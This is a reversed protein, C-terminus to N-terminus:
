ENFRDEWWKEPNTQIYWAIQEYSKQDRIIHDHYRSQRAFPINNQNAYKTVNWKFLKIINWLSPGGYPRNLLGDGTHILWDTWNQIDVPLKTIWTPRMVSTDRRNSIVNQDNWQVDWQGLAVIMHIHNPMVIHNHIYVNKRITEIRKMEDLCHQWLENPCMIVTDRGPVVEGFYHERDKICITIFYWWPSTYDYWKMRPSKRNKMYTHPKYTYESSCVGVRIPDRGRILPCYRPGGQYPLHAWRPVLFLDSPKDEHPM